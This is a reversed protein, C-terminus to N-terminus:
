EGAAMVPLIDEKTMLKLPIAIPRLTRTPRRPMPCASSIRALSANGWTLVLVMVSLFGFILAAGAAYSIPSPINELLGTM